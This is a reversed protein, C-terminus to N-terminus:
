LCRGHRFHETQPLAPKMTGLRFTWLLVGVVALQEGELMLGTCYGPSSVSRLGLKQVPVQVHSASILTAAPPVLSAHSMQVLQALAAEM